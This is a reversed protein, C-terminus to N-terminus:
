FWTKRRYERYEDGFKEELVKAEARARFLQMVVIASLVLLLLEPWGFFLMMGVLFVPSFVYIPNRIRSYIGHTVLHRAKPQVSFSDGLQFQAVLWLTLGPIMLCIGAIRVPTLPRNRFVWVLMGAGVAVVSVRFWRSILGSLGSKNASDGTEAM